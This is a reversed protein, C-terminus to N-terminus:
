HLPQAVLARLKRLTVAPLPEALAVPMMSRSLGAVRRAGDLYRDYLAMADNVADSSRRWEVDLAALEDTALRATETSAAACALTEAVRDSRRRVQSLTVEAVRLFAALEALREAVAQCAAVLLDGDLPGYMEDPTRKWQKLSYALRRRKLYNGLLSAVRLRHAESAASARRVSEVVPALSGPTAPGSAVVRLEAEAQEREAEAAVFHNWAERLLRAEVQMAEVFYEDPSDITGAVFLGTRTERGGGEEVSRNSRSSQVVASLGTRTYDIGFGFAYRLSGTLNSEVETSSRLVVHRLRFPRGRKVFVGGRATFAEGQYSSDSSLVRRAAGEIFSDWGSVTTYRSLWSERAAVEFVSGAVGTVPRVQEMLGASVELWPLQTTLGGRLNPRLQYGLRSFGGYWGVRCANAACRGLTGSNSLAGAEALAGLGVASAALLGQHSAIQHRRWEWDAQTEPFFPQQALVFVGLDLVERANFYRAMSSALQGGSRHDDLLNLDVVLLDLSDVTLHQIRRSRIDDLRTMQRVQQDFVPYAIHLPALSLKYSTSDSLEWPNGVLRDIESEVNFLEVRNLFSLMEGRSKNGVQTFLDSMLRLLDGFDGQLRNQVSQAGAPAPRAACALVLAACCLRPRWGRARRGSQARPKASSSLCVEPAM